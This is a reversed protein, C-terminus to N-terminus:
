VSISCGGLFVQQLVGFFSPAAPFDAIWANLTKNVDASSGEIEKLM